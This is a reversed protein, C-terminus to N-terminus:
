LPLSAAGLIRRGAREQVFVVVQSARGRGDGVTPLPVTLDTAAGPSATVSGIVRLSRVVANHELTRGGNEGGRIRVRLGSEAVALLIDSPASGAPLRGIHVRLTNGRASLAVDAQPARAARAIAQVARGEDSGVFEARGDVVMEPTYESDLHFRSVYGGQRATFAASSFRDTWRASNFYDVHEALVLVEAGPVPQERQLRTALAEAPPCDSCGESTFLEVVVPTRQAAMGPNAGALLLAAAGLMMHRTM